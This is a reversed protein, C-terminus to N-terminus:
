ESIEITEAESRRIALSFGRVRVELPCGFPAVKVVRISVGPVVGMEMLRKTVSSSGSVASVKAIDGINLNALTMKKVSKLIACNFIVKL